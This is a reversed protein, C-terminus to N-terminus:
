HGHDQSTEMCVADLDMNVMERLYKQITISDPTTLKSSIVTDKFINEVSGMLGCSYGIADFISKTLFTTTTKGSTGTVAVSFLDKAPHEYFNAALDPEILSTDEFIIQTVNKLFPDYVQAAIALAGAKVADYIYGAGDLKSGKRAIFLNGYAAIKSDSCIGTIEINQSGKIEKYKINKLIKKLNM